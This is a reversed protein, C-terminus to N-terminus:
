SGTVSREKKLVWGYGRRVEPEKPERKGIGNIVEAIHMKRSKTVGIFDPSSCM